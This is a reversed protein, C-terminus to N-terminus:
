SGPHVSGRTGAAAGGAGWVGRYEGVTVCEFGVIINTNIYDYLWFPMLKVCVYVSYM